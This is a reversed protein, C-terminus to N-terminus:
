ARGYLWCFIRTKMRDCMYGLSEAQKKKGQVCGKVENEHGQTCLPQNIINGLGGHVAVCTKCQVIGPFWQKSCFLISSLWMSLDLIHKFSFNALLIHYMICMYVPMELIPTNKITIQNWSSPMLFLQKGTKIGTTVFEKFCLLRVVVSTSIISYQFVFSFFLIKQNHNPVRGM